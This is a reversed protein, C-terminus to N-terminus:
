GAMKRQIEPRHSRIPHHPSQLEPTFTQKYQDTQSSLTPLMLLTRMAERAAFVPRRGM